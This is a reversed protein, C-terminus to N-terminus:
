PMSMRRFEIGFNAPREELASLPFADALRDYRPSLERASPVGALQRSRVSRIQHNPLAARSRFLQLKHVLSDPLPM